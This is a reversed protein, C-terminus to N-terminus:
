GQRSVREAPGGPGAARGIAERVGLRTRWRRRRRDGARPCLLSPPNSATPEMRYRGRPSSLAGAPEPRFAPQRDSRAQTRSPSNAFHQCACGIAKKQAGERRRHPHGSEAAREGIPGPVPGQQGGGDGADAHEEPHLQGQEVVEDDLAEVDLGLLEAPHLRQALDRPEQVGEEHGEHDAHGGRQHGGRGQRDHAEAQHGVGVHARHRGQDEVGHHPADAEVAPQRHLRGQGQPEGRGAALPSPEALQAGDAADGHEDGDAGAHEQQVQHVVLPHVQEGPPGRDEPARGQDDGGPAVGLHLLLPEDELPPVAEVVQQLKQLPAPPLDEGGEGDEGEDLNM